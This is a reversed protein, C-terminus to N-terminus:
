STLCRKNLVKKILVQDVEGIWPKELEEVLIFRLQGAQKKKDQVMAQEVDEPAVQIKLDYDWADLLAIIRNYLSTETLGLMVGTDLACAIGWAVGEGHSISSFGSASELAHGFTHGLNLCARIGSEKLDKEVIQGKVQACRSIVEKLVSIERNKLADMNNELLVLLEKDGLIATKIAEAMGSRYERDSLSLLVTPDMLVQEAPYFTGVMNKFNLFDVGTKGGIAADVMALLTTPILIVSCGRMYLSAAFATMDTIVGGGIGLIVSKRDLQLEVAKKLIIQISDLHKASEGPELIVIKKEWEEPLSFLHVTHKDAVILAPELDELETSDLFAVQSQYQEFSIKKIMEM